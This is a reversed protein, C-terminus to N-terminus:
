LYPLKSHIMWDFSQMRRARLMSTMRFSSQWPCGPAPLNEIQMIPPKGSSYEATGVVM